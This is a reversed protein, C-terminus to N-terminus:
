VKHKIPSGISIFGLGMLIWALLRFVKIEFNDIEIDLIVGGFGLYYVRFGLVGSGM